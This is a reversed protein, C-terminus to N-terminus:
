AKIQLLCSADFICYVPSHDSNNDPLHLVGSDRVLSSFEFDWFFHDLLSTFTNGLLEHTCSYDAAFSDWSKQLGLDQLAQDVAETHFTNRAFDSNIDGTWIVHDYENIDMIRKIVAITELLDSYDSNPSQPDTPFYSNILLINRTSFKLMAAQVRWHGPSVDTM